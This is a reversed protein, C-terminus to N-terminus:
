KEKTPLEEIKVNGQLVLEDTHHTYFVYGSYWDNLVVFGDNLSYSDTHLDGSNDARIFYRTHPETFHNITTASVTIIILAIAITWLFTTPETEHKEM